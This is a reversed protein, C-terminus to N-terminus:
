PCVSLCGVQMAEKQMLENKHKTNKKFNGNWTMDMRQGIVCMNEVKGMDDGESKIM